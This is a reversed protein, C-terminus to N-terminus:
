PSCCRFGVLDGFASTPSVVNLGTCQLSPSHTGYGGGRYACGADSCADEWEWVNGSMDYIGSFGGVCGPLTGVAIRGKGGAYDFGNCTVPQYGAGYPYPHIGDGAHSCAYFWADEQANTASLPSSPGGDLSGCLHKGAWACYMYADCWNCGVPLNEQGAMFPAGAEYSTNAACNPPQGSMDGGKAKVFQQYQANTVETSDIRFPGVAVMEDGGESQTADLGSDGADAADGADSVDGADGADGAEGADGAADGADSAVPLDWSYACAVISLASAAISAAVAVRM